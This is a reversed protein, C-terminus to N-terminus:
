REGTTPITPAVGEPSEDAGNRDWWGKGPPSTPQPRRRHRRRRRPRPLLGEAGRPVAVIAGRRQREAHVPARGRLSPLSPICYPWMVRLCTPTVTHHNRRPNSLCRFSTYGSVAKQFRDNKVPYMDTYLRWFAEARAM